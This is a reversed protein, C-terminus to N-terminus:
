VSFANEVLSLRSLCRRYPKSHLQSVENQGVFVQGSTPRDFASLMRFLTTKGAGSPGTLFIFEGKEVKFNVDKLAHTPGAYTKYVHRFEIM